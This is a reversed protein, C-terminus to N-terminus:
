FNGRSCDGLRGGGVRLTSAATTGGASRQPSSATPCHPSSPKLRGTENRGTRSIRLYQSRPRPLHGRDQPPEDPHDAPPRRRSNLSCHAPRWRTEDERRIEQARRPVKRLARRPVGQRVVRVFRQCRQPLSATLCHPLPANPISAAPAGAPRQHHATRQTWSPGSSPGMGRVLEQLPRRRQRGPHALPPCSGPSSGRAPGLAVM